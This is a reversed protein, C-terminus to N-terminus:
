DGAAAASQVAAAHTSARVVLQCELKTLLPRLPRGELAHALLLEAARYGLDYSPVRVSTLQPAMHRALDLDNYGVVSVDDPVRLGLAAIAGTAGLAMMDNACFIATPPDPQQLLEMALVRGSGASWDGDRLLRAEVGIDATALAERYGRMRDRAADMWPEGGIMAIRRHGQALLHATAAFGGGVEGPLLTPHQRRRAYCNVLVTPVAALVAPPDIERTFSTAYIVGALGPIRLLQQLTAAELAADGRTAFSHVVCEQTWAADRAGDINLIAHPSVSVEDVVYAISRGPQAAGPPQAPMPKRGPMAYGLQAAVDRVRQRTADSLRSGATDNLVLSVCSQSVGAIRAIDTMTPRM